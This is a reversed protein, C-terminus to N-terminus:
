YRFRDFGGYIPEFGHQFHVHCPMVFYHCIFLCIIAYRSNWPLKIRIGIDCLYRFKGIRNKMTSPPTPFKFIGCFDYLFCLSMYHLTLTDINPRYPKGMRRQCLLGIIKRMDSHLLTTFAKDRTLVVLENNILLLDLTASM